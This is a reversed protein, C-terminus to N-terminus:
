SPIVWWQKDNILLGVGPEYKEPNDKDFMQMVSLKRQIEEPLLDYETYTEMSIFKGNAQTYVEYGKPRNWVLWAKVGNKSLVNHDHYKEEAKQVKTILNEIGPPPKTIDKLFQVVIHDNQDVYHRAEPSTQENLRHLHMSLSSWVNNVIEQPTASRLNDLITKEAKHLDSTRATNDGRQKVLGKGNICIQTVYARGVYRQDLSAHGLVEGNHNIYIGTEHLTFDWDAKAYYLLKLLAILTNQATPTLIKIRTLGKLPDTTTLEKSIPAKPM